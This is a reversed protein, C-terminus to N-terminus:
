SQAQTRGTELPKSRIRNTWRLGASVLNPRKRNSNPALEVSTPGARHLIRCSCLASCFIQYHESAGADTLIAEFKTLGPRMQGASAHAHGSEQM